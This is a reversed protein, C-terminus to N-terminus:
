GLMSFQIFLWMLFIVFISTVYSSFLLLNLKPLSKNKPYLMILAINMILYILSIFLQFIIFKFDENSRLIVINPSGVVSFIVLPYFMTLLIITSYSKKSIEELGFDFIDFNVFFNLLIRLLYMLGMVLLLIGVSYAWAGERLTISASTSYIWFGLILLIIAIIVGFIRQLSIKNKKTKKNSKKVM